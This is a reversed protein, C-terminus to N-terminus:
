PSLRDLLALLVDSGVPKVFHASFGAQESRERDREQGYGTLAILVPTAVGLAARMEGALAYGDMVPLGIDLIAVQPRFRVAESLALSPDHAVRVEHGASRLLNGIMGAADRNDDVVLIRWCRTGPVTDPGADIVGRAPDVATSCPVRVVFESGRGRGESHASVTGGHLTVLTYVLSLGLGLGGQSREVGRGGTAFMDFVSPQVPVVGKDAHKLLEKLEQGHM